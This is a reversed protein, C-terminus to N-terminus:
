VKNLVCEVRADVGYKEVLMKVLNRALEVERDSDPEWVRVTEGDVVIRCRM